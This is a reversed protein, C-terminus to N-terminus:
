FLIHCMEVCSIPLPLTVVRDGGIMKEDESTVPPTCTGLRGSIWAWGLHLVDKSQQLRVTHRRCADVMEETSTNTMVAVLLERGYM